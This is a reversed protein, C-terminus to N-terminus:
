EPRKPRVLASVRQRSVEFLSAIETVRMGETRLTSALARRFAGIAQGLNAL